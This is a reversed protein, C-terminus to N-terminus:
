HIQCRRDLVVGTYLPMFVFIVVGGLTQIFKSNFRKGLLEPFTHANLNLGMQRTRKGFFIFAIGIGLAINLFTLWLLGMGFVGATGGFGVIASTSIFTAGYSIAMVYPHIQRGAVMYDGATKTGRFGRYGLYGVVILYVVIIISLVFINM